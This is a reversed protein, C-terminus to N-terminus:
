FNKGKKVVIKLCLSGNKMRSKNKAPLKEPNRKRKEPISNTDEIPDMYVQSTSPIISSRCM